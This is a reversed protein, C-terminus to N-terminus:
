VRSSRSVYVDQIIQPALASLQTLVAATLLLINGKSSLLRFPNLLPWNFIAQPLYSAAVLLWMGWAAAKASVFNLLFVPFCCFYALDFIGAGFGLGIWGLVSLMVAIIAVPILILWRTIKGTKRFRQENTM